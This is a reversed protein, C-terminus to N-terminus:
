ENAEGGETEEDEPILAYIADALNAAANAVAKIADAKIDFLAILQELQDTLSEMGQMITEGSGLAFLEEEPVDLAAALDHRQDANPTRTGNEWSSITPISYGILEAFDRQTLGMDVRAQKLRSIGGMRPNNTNNAM